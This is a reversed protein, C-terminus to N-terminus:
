LVTANKFFLLTAVCLLFFWVTSSLFFRAERWAGSDVDDNEHEEQEDILVDQPPRRGVEPDDELAANYTSQLLRCVVCPSYNNVDVVFFYCL